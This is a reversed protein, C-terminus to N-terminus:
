RVVLRALYSASGGASKTIDITLIGSRRAVITASRGVPLAERAKRGWLGASWAKAMFRLGVTMRAGRAVVVRPLDTRSPPAIKDVCAAAGSTPDTWCYSGTALRVTRDPVHLRAPPPAVQERLAPSAALASSITMLMGFCCAALLAKM